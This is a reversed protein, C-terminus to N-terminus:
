LQGQVVLQPKYGPVVRAYTLYISAIDRRKGNLDFKRTCHGARVLMAAKFRQSEGNAYRVSMARLSFPADLSCLRLKKYRMSGPLTVVDNDVRTNVGKRALTVWGDRDGYYRSSSKAGAPISVMLGAAAAVTLVTRPIMLSEGEEM